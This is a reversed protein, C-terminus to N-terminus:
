QKILANVIDVSGGEAACYLLTFGNEDCTTLIKLLNVGYENNQKKMIRQELLYIFNKFVGNRCHRRLLLSLYINDFVFSGEVKELM